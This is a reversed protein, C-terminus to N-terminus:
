PELNGAIRRSQSCCASPKLYRKVAQGGAPQNLKHKM